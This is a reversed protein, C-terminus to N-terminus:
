ITVCFRYIPLSMIILCDKGKLKVLKGWGVSVIIIVGHLSIAASALSTRYFLYFDTHRTSQSIATPMVYYIRTPSFNFLLLTSQILANSDLM